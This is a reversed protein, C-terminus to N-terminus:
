LGNVLRKIGDRMHVVNFNLLYGLRFEGLRLYTLLQAHHVSKIEIVVKRNVLLDLRFGTEIKEGEYVVPVVLQREVKLGLKELELALCAEYVSELLGPGVKSRVTMASRLVLEGLANEDEGGRGGRGEEAGEAHVRKQDDSLM